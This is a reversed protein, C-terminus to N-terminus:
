NNSTACDGSSHLVAVGTNGVTCTVTHAAGQPDVFGVTLVEGETGLATAVLGTETTSISRFRAASVGVWKDLEGQFSWGNVEVPVISWLQFDLTGCSTLHLPVDASFEKITATSNAEFARFRAQSSVRVDLQSPVLQYNTKLDAVFVYGFARSGVTSPAFWIESDFPPLLSASVTSGRPTGAQVARSVMLDDIIIAPGSPQLLRGSKSCSKLVLPVDTYGIGDAIQVPGASLTAVASHLRPNSEYREEGYPNGPQFSSTWFGDKSSALGLADILMSQGAIKWNDVGDYPSVVYDDSARTQTVVPVEVSHLMFRIYPMCYQITLGAQEAGTGMQMLWTRARDVTTLMESVYQYMENFLWDQEYVRLGWASTPRLLDSWFNSDTPVSGHKVADVSFEYEGGNQKAYVADEGWYRNHAQV